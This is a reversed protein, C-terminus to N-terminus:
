AGLWRQWWSGATDDESAEEADPGLPPLTRGGGADQPTESSGITPSHALPPKYEPVPHYDSFRRKKETETLGHVVNRVVHVTGWRAVLRRKLAVANGREVFHAVAEGFEDRGMPDVGGKLYVDYSAQGSM